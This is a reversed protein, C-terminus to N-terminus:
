KFPITELVADVADDVFSEFLAGVAGGSPPGSMNEHFFQLNRRLSYPPAVQSGAICPEQLMQSVEQQLREYIRNAM